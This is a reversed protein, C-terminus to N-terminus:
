SVNEQALQLIQASVTAFLFHLGTPYTSGASGRGVLPLAPNITTTPHNWLISPIRSKQAWERVKDISQTHLAFSRTSPLHELVGLLGQEDAEDVPVICLDPGFFSHSAYPSKAIQTLSMLHVGPSVFFGEGENDIPKGWRFVEQSERSAMSQFRLFREWSRGNCLPGMVHQDRRGMDARAGIPMSKVAEVLSECFETEIKKSVFVLGTSELRQGADLCAGLVIDEVARPISADAMVYAANKGGSCLVLRVNNQHATDQRLQELNEEIGTYFVTHFQHTLLLRRFVEFDGYVVQIAGPPFAAQHFGSALLSGSLLCHSSPRVCVANGAALAPLAAALLSYVPLSIPSSILVKGLPAYCWEWGGPHRKVALADQCFGPLLRFLDQCLAWEAEVSFRSRALELMMNSKIEEANDNLFGILRQILVLRKELPVWRFEKQATEMGSLINDLFDKHWGAQALIDSPQAPNHTQFVLEPKSLPVFRGNIYPPIFSLNQHKM